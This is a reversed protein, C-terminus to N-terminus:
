RPLGVKAVLEQFGPDGHLFTFHPDTGMEAVGESHREYAAKLYDM